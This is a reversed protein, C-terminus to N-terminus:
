AGFLLGHLLRGPVLIAFGGAVLMGAVYLVIMARKHTRLDHRRAAFYATPVNYLTLASLIHLYGFHGLFRPGIMAPMFLTVVGTVLMLAMYVKGLLRHPPTGKRNLLLWTGIAFAPLVFALHIYALHGYSVNAEHPM